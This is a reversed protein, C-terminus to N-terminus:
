SQVVTVYSVELILFIAMIVPSAIVQPTASFVDKYKPKAGHVLMIPHVSQTILFIDM